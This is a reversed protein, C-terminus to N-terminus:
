FVCEELLRRAEKVEEDTAKTDEDMDNLRRKKL